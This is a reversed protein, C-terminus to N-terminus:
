LCLSAAENEGEGESKGVNNGATVTVVSARKVVATSTSASGHPGRRVVRKRRNCGVGQNCGFEVRVVQARVRQGPKSNSVCSQRYLPICVESHGDTFRKVGVTSQRRSSQRDAAAVARSVV